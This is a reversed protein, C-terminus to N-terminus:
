LAEMLTDFQAKIAVQALKVSVPVAGQYPHVTFVKAPSLAQDIFVPTLEPHNSLLVNPILGVGFGAAILSVTQAITDTTHTAAFSLSQSEVGGRFFTHKIHTGQWHNAIYAVSNIDVTSGVAQCLVDTFSGLLRQKYRSDKSDGVRVALDIDHHMLDLQEDQCILSFHVDPYRLFAHKLAPVVLTDMLAHPATITLKGSPETQQAMVEDWAQESIQHMQVCHDYFRKGSPTLSQRRTTRKLLTTALESELQKLHQSLVSKSLAMKEAAKTISGAEVIRMFIAMQRLKNM